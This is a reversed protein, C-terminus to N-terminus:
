SQTNLAREGCLKNLLNSLEFVGTGDSAMDRVRERDDPSFVDSIAVKVLPILANISAAIQNGILENNKTTGPSFAEKESKYRMDRIKKMFADVKKQSIISMHVNGDLGGVWDGFTSRRMNFLEAGDALTSVGYLEMTEFAIKRIEWNLKHKNENM